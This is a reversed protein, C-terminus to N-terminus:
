GRRRQQEAIDAAEQEAAYVSPHAMAQRCKPCRLDLLATRKARIAVYGCSPCKCKVKPGSFRM